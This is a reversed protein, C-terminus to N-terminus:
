ALCALSRAQRHFQLAPLHPEQEASILPMGFSIHIVRRSWNGSSLGTVMSGSLANGRMRSKAVSTEHVKARLFFDLLEPRSRRVGGVARPPHRLRVDVADLFKALADFAEQALIDTVDQTVMM